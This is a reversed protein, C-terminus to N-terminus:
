DKTNPYWLPPLAPFTDTLERVNQKDVFLETNVLM